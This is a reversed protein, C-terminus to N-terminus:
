IGWKMQAFILLQKFDNEPIEPAYQGWWIQKKGNLIYYCARYQIRGNRLRIKQFFNKANGNPETLGVEDIVTGRKEGDFFVLKGINSFEKLRTRVSKEKKISNM